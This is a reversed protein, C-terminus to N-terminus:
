LTQPAEGLKVTIEQSKGGRFISLRLNDGARKRNMAKTLTDNGEIPQGEV